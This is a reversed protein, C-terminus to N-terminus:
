LDCTWRSGQAAPGFQLATLQALLDARDADVATEATLINRQAALQLSAALLYTESAELRGRQHAATIEVILRSVRAIM